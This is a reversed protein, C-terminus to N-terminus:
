FFFYYILVKFQLIAKYLRMSSRIELCSVISSFALFALCNMSIWVFHIFIHFVNLGSVRVLYDQFIGQIDLIEKSYGRILNFRLNDEILTFNTNPLNNKQNTSSTSTEFDFIVKLHKVIYSTYGSIWTSAVRMNVLTVEKSYNQTESGEPTEAPYYTKLESGKHSELSTRSLLHHFELREFARYTEQIHVIGYVAEEIQHICTESIDAEGFEIMKKTLSPDDKIMHCIDLGIASGISSKQLDVFYHLNGAEAGIDVYSRYKLSELVLTMMITCLTILSAIIMLGMRSM